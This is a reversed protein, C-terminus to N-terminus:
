TRRGHSQREVHQHLFYKRAIVYKMYTGYATTISITLGPEGHLFGKKFFYKRTFAGFAHLVPDLPGIKINKEKLMNANRICFRASQNILEDYNNFSYHLIHGPLQGGNKHIVKAHGMKQEYQATKRHYLRAIRDPYWVKIWEKGIYTKRNIFYADFPSKDLDLQQIASILEEDIREDADISLIWDNSAQEAAFAKQPGDGLYSQLVVKAGHEKAIAVTKDNSNSDVVVVEDCVAQLSKICDAINKEENLTIITGTIKNM